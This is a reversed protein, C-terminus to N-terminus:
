VFSRGEDGGRGFIAENVLIQNRLWRLVICGGAAVLFVLDFVRSFISFDPLSELLENTSSTAPLSILSTLLYISMLQGLFLLMFSTGVSTSTAKFVKSVSELVNRMNALLIGGTLLL